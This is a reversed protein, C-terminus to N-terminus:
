ASEPTDQLYCRRQDTSEVFSVTKSQGLLRICTEEKEIVSEVGCNSYDISKLVFDLAVIGDLQTLQQDGTADRLGSACQNIHM